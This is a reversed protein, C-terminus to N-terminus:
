FYSHFIHIYSNHFHLIMHLFIINLYQFSIYALLYSDLIKVTTSVIEHKEKLFKYVINNKIKTYHYPVRDDHDDEAPPLVVGKVFPRHSVVEVNEYFSIAKIMKHYFNQNSPNPLVKSESCINQFVKESTSSALFIVNM